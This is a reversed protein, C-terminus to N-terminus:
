AKWRQADKTAYRAVAADASVGKALRRVIERLARAPIACTMETNAMGTRVRSLACGVSVAVKGHEKAMAVVQCQPKGEFHLEPGLADSLAMAQRADIRLFVVDPEISTHELPGYVVFAHRKTVVPIKPFDQPSVWGAGVLASVDANGAVEDLTKLGHTLSGVSCNVHDAPTTTFARDAAKMWFVCGAAVRGTRLAM